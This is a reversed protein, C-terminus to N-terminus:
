ISTPTREELLELYPQYRFKRNRKFGTWEVLLDMSEFQSVLKNATPYAIGLLEAASTVSVMPQQLIRDVFELAFANGPMERHVLARHTERFELISKATEAAETAVELTGRLFFKLWGELDDDDRVNQLRNIYEEQNQRLYRSLYLLPRKLVGEHLLMFTILLRGMRGNGDNFPHITEFQAHALGCRILPPYTPESNLFTEFDDLAKDLESPPPPVFLADAIACGETGIWNQDTRFEGSRFEDGRAGRMLIRHVDRLLRRSPPLEEVLEVARNMAVVHNVVEVVDGAGRKPLGIAEYELVETLTSQTGEIRSSLVSETLVYMAVFLEPNPLIDTAGDLRGLAVDATSLLNLMETDIDIPPIPPLPKPIYATFGGPQLVFSGARGM